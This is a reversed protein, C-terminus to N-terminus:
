GLKLANLLDRKRTAEAYVHFVYCNAWEISPEQGRIVRWGGRKEPNPRYFEVRWEEIAEM